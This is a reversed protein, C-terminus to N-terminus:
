GKASAKAPSLAGSPHEGHRAVVVVERPLHLLDAASNLIGSDAHQAVLCDHQLASPRLEADGSDIVEVGACQRLIELTPAIRIPHEARPFAQQRAHGCRPNHEAMARVVKLLQDQQTRIAYKGPM